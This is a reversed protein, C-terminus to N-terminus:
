DRDVSLLERTWNVSERLFPRPDSWDLVELNSGRGFESTIAGIADAAVEMPRVSADRNLAAKMRAFWHDIEGWLWRTRVGPSYSLCEFVDEGLAKRVMLTPFDVGSDIALQLSGWLRPNVEMLYPKGSAESVKFEVMAVGEWNFAELLDQARKFLAEEPQISERLVSVGGTPPKERLRRHAFRAIVGGGDLLLFVGVGHGTIREQVLLPFSAEPLERISAEFSSRRDVHKVGVSRREGHAVGVSRSPKLVVPFRLENLATPSVAAREELVIQRPVPIGCAPARRLVEDKDLLEMFAGYDGFPIVAPSLRDRVPLLVLLSPETMPLVVDIGERDVIGSIDDAYQEAETLPAAVRWARRCYKSSAALSRGQDTTVSVRYGARGLARVAALSSRQHGDTILVSARRTSSETVADKRSDPNMEM